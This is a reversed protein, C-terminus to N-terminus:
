STLKNCKLTSALYAERSEARTACEGPYRFEVAYQNLLVLADRLLEWNPRIPLCLALLEELDHTKGFRIGHESLWAKFYKEACQQAHFCLADPNHHIRARYERGATHADGEAKQVWERTLNKM